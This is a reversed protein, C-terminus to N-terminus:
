KLHPCVSDLITCSSVRQGIIMNCLMKRQLHELKHTVWFGKWRAGALMKDAGRWGHSGVMVPEYYQRNMTWHLLLLRRPGEQQILLPVIETEWERMVPNADQATPLFIALRTSPARQDLIAITVNHICAFAAVHAGHAWDDLVEKHRSLEAECRRWGQHPDPGHAGM